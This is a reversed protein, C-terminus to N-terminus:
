IKAVNSISRRYGLSELKSTIKRAEERAGTGRLMEARQAMLRPTEPVKAPWAALSAKWDAIAGARDGTRWAIDGLLKHALALEFPDKATTGVGGLSGFQQRALARAQEGDSNAAALEARLALCQSATSRWSAMDPNRAVLRDALGCGRAISAAGEATHGARLLLTARNVETNATRGMWDANNPDLAVLERGLDTAAAAMTLSQKTEGREFLLRSLAMNAIMAKQRLDADSHERALYPALHQLQRQRQAIAPLLQGASGQADSLYALAESLLKHYEMNAPERAVLRETAAVSAQFTEAAERYRRQEQEVIGLNSSAYVLELQWKPNNPDAAVMRQALRRYERFRVGAEDTAGKAMAISGVWYVSQAHDFMKQPDDPFRRLAEATGALAERYRRLAGDLDGRSAAIEGMLTLAKSRQALADDSLDSKNQNEYYALAKAGVADLVDLRGVPELRTRLDGLMFGILGDAERRQDRAEDRAQIATYALGSTFLMGAVSAATIITMRRQRRHAERQALDDLGVGLLGAATKLLGMHRGDGSDRLDAALPEARQTTLRGKRDCHFRLAPPFCEEHERGRIDSACPEGDLIVALVRDERHLRKFCKIEENIWHSQSATPSCLVILFRSAAMAEEIEEGLDAAAALEHRDRFIPSLRKPVPGTDTLQGVLRKPVRFEELSEHLWAAEKEDDHSYSLFAMYRQHPPARRARSPATRSIRPLHALEAM